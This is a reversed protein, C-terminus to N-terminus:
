RGTSMERSCRSREANRAPRRLKGLRRTRGTWASKVPGSNSGSVPSGRARRTTYKGPEVIPLKLGRAAVLKSQVIAQSPRRRAAPEQDAKVEVLIFRDDPGCVIVASADAGCEVQVHEFADIALEAGVEVQRCKRVPRIVHSRFFAHLHIEDTAHWLDDPDGPRLKAEVRALRDM